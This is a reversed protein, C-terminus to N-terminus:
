RLWGPRLRRIALPEHRIATTTRAAVTGGAVDAVGAATVVAVIVVVTPAHGGTVGMGVDVGVTRPARWVVTSATRRTM